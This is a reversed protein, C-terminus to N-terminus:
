VAADPEPDIHLVPIGDYCQELLLLQLILADHSQFFRSGREMNGDSGWGGGRCLAQGEHEIM